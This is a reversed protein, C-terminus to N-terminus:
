GESRWSGEGRNERKKGSFEKGGMQGHKTKASACKGETCAAMENTRNEPKHPYVKRIARLHQHTYTHTHTRSPSRKRKFALHVRSFKMNPRHHLFVMFIYIDREVYHIAFSDGNFKVSFIRKKSHFRNLFENWTRETGNRKNEKCQEWNLAKWRWLELMQSYTNM